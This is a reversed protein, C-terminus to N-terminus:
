PSLARYVEIDPTLTQLGTPVDFSKVRGRDMVLIQDFGAIMDMRHAVALVTCNGFEKTLIDKMLGEMEVDMSSTAEDLILITSKALMARALCLMQKQGHSLPLQAIDTNLGEHTEVV